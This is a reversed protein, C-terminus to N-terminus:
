FRAAAAVVHAVVAERVSAEQARIHYTAASVVAFSIVSLKSRLGSLQPTPFAPSTYVAHSVRWGIHARASRSLLLSVQPAATYVSAADTTDQLAAEDADNSASRVHSDALGSRLLRRM